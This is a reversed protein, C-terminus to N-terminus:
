RIEKRLNEMRMRRGDHKNSFSEMSVKHIHVIKKEPRSFISHAGTRTEHDPYAMAMLLQHFLADPFTM